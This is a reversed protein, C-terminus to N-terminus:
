TDFKIVLLPALPLAVAQGDEGEEQTSQERQHPQEEVRQVTGVFCKLEGEVDYSTQVRSGVQVAPLSEWWRTNAHAQPQQSPESGSTAETTEGAAGAEGGATASGAAETTAAVAAAVAATTPPAAAAAAVAAAPNDWRSERTLPNFWYPTGVPQPTSDGAQVHHQEWAAESAAADATTTAAAAAAAAAEDSKRKQERAATAEEQAAAAAVAVAAEAQAVSNGDGALAERDSPSSGVAQYSYSGRSYPDARWRSVEV